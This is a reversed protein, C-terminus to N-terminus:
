DLGKNLSVLAPGDSLGLDSTKLPLMPADPAVRLARLADNTIRSFIPAAVDGGFYIKGKPDDIMVAVVVRPASAPAFGVFSSVYKNV